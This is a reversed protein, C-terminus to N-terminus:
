GRMAARPTSGRAGGRSRGSPAEAVRMLAPLAAAVNEAVWRDEAARQPFRRLTHHLEGAWWAIGAVDLLREEPAIGLEKWYGRTADAFDGSRWPRELVARGLSLHARRRAETGVLQILDAGPVGDAHAADWDVIGRLSGREILVNGSWLDGHRQIAPIGDLPARLVDALRRLGGAHRPLRAATALLDDVPAMPPAGCRPLRSCALAVERVLDWTMRAPRRGPLAEEASWSAGAVVGRGLLRPAHAVGALRELTEAAGAPDGPAAARTVRLVAPTGSGLWVRLLLTGAAGARIRAPLSSAGAAQLVADLVRQGAGPSALEVVVGARVAGRAWGRLGRSAGPAPLRHVARVRLRGRAAARLALVDLERATAHRLPHHAGDALRGWVLVEADAPLTARRRDGPVAEVVVGAAEPHAPLFAHALAAFPTTEGAEV